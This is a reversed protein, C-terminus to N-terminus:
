NMMLTAKGGCNMFLEKSTTLLFVYLIFFYKLLVARSALKIADERSRM